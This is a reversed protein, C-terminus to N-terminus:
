GGNLEPFPNTRGCYEKLGGTGGDMTDISGDDWLLVLTRRLGTYGGLSNKANLVVCVCSPASKEAVNNGQLRLLNNEAEITRLVDKLCKQVDGISADRISYPDVWLQARNALIARKAVDIPILPPAAAASSALTAGITLALGMRVCRRAGHM